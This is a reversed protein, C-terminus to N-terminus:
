RRQSKVCRGPRGSCRRSSTVGRAQAASFPRSDLSSTLQSGLGPEPLSGGDTPTYNGLRKSTGLEAYRTASRGGASTPPLKAIALRGAPTAALGYFDWADDARDIVTRLWGQRNFTSDAILLLARTGPNPTPLRKTFLFVNSDYPPSVGATTCEPLVPGMALELASNRNARISVSPYDVVGSRPLSFRFSYMGAALRLLRGLAGQDSFALLVSDDDGGEPRSASAPCCRAM